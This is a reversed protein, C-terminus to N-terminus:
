AVTVQVPQGKIPTNPIRIITQNARTAIINATGPSVGRAVVQTATTSVALVNVNDSRWIVDAAAIGDLPRRDSTMVTPTLFLNADVGVSYPGPEAFTVSDVVPLLLDPLNVSATDPVSICRAQDENGEVYASYNGGRILDIEAYGDKDTRIAVRETFVAASELLIPDFQAIFHLDLFRKPAGTLNRFFGSARCLRPDTAIPPILVDGRTVFDNPGGEVVTFLQPQQFSVQAKYFRASYDQTELLFSALGNEDSVAQTYFVSGAPNYIKVLVNPVPTAAPTKDTVLFSVPEFSM